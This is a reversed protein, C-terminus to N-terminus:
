QQPHESSFDFLLDVTGDEPHRVFKVDQPSANAPLSSKNKAYFDRIIKRDMFEGSALASELTAEMTRDLGAVRVAGIRYQRGEDLEFVLRIKRSANDYRLLATPAFDMYGNAQYLRSLAVLGVRLADTSYPEGDKLPVLKRLEDAPFAMAASGHENV